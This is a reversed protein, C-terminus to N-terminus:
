RARSAGHTNGEHMHACAPCELSGIFRKRFKHIAVNTVDCVAEKKALSGTINPCFQLVKNPLVRLGRSLRRREVCLLASSPALAKSTPYSQLKLHTVIIPRSTHNHPPLATHGVSVNRRTLLLGWEYKKGNGTAATVARNYMGVLMYIDSGHVVTTPKSVHIRTESESVTKDVAQTACKEDDSPCEELVQTKLKNKDLEEKTQEGAWTLLETAFGDFFDNVTNKKRGKAEAVAFVDGNVEVLSPFFLSIVTGEDKTDRWVFLKGKSPESDSLKENSAAGGSGCCMVVVLLLVASAFVRRSMNPRRPESERGERRRGSSGTVGRRNHTRPAKVAAVRSLM